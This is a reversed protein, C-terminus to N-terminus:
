KIAGKLTDMADMLTNILVFERYDRSAQIDDIIPAPLSRVAQEIRREISRSSDNLVAEMQTSRFSYACVGSFAARIQNDKAIAALSVVPYGVKSAKTKKLSVYQYASYAKEVLIQVLFQGSEMKMEQQFIDKLDIIQEGDKGAIKVQADALLLPLAAERYILRSHLNGGITIKNRSTHDAIQKVAQGLLPFLNSATIKNLSVASGIVLQNESAEM